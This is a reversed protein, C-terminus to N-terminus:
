PLGWTINILQMGSGPSAIASFFFAWGCAILFVSIVALPDYGTKWAMYTLFAGAVWFMLMPIIWAMVPSIIIVPLVIEIM